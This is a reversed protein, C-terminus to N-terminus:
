KNLKDKQKNLSELLQEGAVNLLGQNKCHELALIIALTRAITLNEINFQNFKNKQKIIKM